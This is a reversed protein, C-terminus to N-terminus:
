ARNAETVLVQGLALIGAILGLGCSFQPAGQSYWCTVQEMPAKLEIVLTVMFRPFLLAEPFWRKKSLLVRMNKGKWIASFNWAPGAQAMAM